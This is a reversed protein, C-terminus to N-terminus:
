FVSLKIYRGPNQQIDQTLSTLSRTADRLDYYLASDNVMLGLTGEGNDIKEAISALRDAADKFDESVEALRAATAEIDALAQDIEDSALRSNLTEATERLSRSLAAFEGSNERVLREVGRVTGPLAAVTGHVQDITSDAMLKDLQDLLTEAKEGLTGALDMLGSSVAVGLTDGDAAPDAAAGPQLRVVKDGFVGVAEVLIRSDRPIQLSRQIWVRVVVRGAGVLEVNRVVGVEVGSMQVQSGRSLGAANPLVAYVHYGREGLPQGTLWYYGWFTVVTAVIALLGIWLELKKSRRAM